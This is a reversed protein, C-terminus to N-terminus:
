SSLGQSFRNQACRSKPGNKAFRAVGGPWFRVSKGTAWRALRPNQRHLIPVDGGRIGCRERVPTPRRVRRSSAPAALYSAMLKRLGFKHFPTISSLYRASSRGYGANKQMPLGLQRIIENWDSVRISLPSKSADDIRKRV